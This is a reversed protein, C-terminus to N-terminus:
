PTVGGDLEEAFGAVCAGDRFTRDVAEDEAVGDKRLAEFATFCGSPCCGKGGTEDACRELKGICATVGRNGNVTYCDAVRSLCEGWRAIPDDLSEDFVLGISMGVVADGGQILIPLGADNKALTDVLEKPLKAERAKPPDVLPPKTPDDCRCGALAACLTAFVALRAM